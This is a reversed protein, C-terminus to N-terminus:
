RSQLQHAGDGRLTPRKHQTTTYRPNVLLTKNPLTPALRRRSDPSIGSPSFYSRAFRSLLDISILVLMCHHSSPLLVGPCSVLCPLAPDRSRSSPSHHHIRPARHNPTSPSHLHIIGLAKNTGEYIRLRSTNVTPHTPTTYLCCPRSALLSINSAPAAPPLISYLSLPPTPAYLCSVWFVRYVPSCCCYAYFVVTV